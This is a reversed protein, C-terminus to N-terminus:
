FLVGIHKLVSSVQLALILQFDFLNSLWYDIRKPLYRDRELSLQFFLQYPQLTKPDYFSDCFRGRPKRAENNYLFRFSLDANANVWLVEVFNTPPAM